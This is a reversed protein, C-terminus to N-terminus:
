RDQEYWKVIQYSLVVGKVNAIQRDLEVAAPTGDLVDLRDAILRLLLAEQNRFNIELDPRM